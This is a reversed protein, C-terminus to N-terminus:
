IDLQIENDNEDDIYFHEVFFVREKSKYNIHEIIYNDDTLYDDNNDAFNCLLDCIEDFSDSYADESPAYVCQLKMNGSEFATYELQWLCNNNYFALQHKHGSLSENEVYMDYHLWEFDTCLDRENFVLTELSNREDKTLDKSWFEFDNNASFKNEM